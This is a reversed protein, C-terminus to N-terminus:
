SSASLFFLVVAPKNRLVIVFSSMASWTELFVPIGAARRLVESRSLAKCKASSSPYRTIPYSVATFATASAITRYRACM